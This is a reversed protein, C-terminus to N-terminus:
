CQTRALFPFYPQTAVFARVMLPATDVKKFNQAFIMIIFPWKSAIAEKM